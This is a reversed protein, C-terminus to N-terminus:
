AIYAKGSKGGTAPPLNEFMTRSPRTHFEYRNMKVAVKNDQSRVVRGVVLLTLPCTEQLM